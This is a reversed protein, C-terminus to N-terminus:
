QASLWNMLSEEDTEGVIRTVETGEKYSVVTPIGDISFRNWGEEDEMLNLHKVRIGAEEAASNLLPAMNECHSCFPTYFYVIVDGKTSLIYELTESDSIDTGNERSREQVDSIIADAEQQAEEQEATEDQLQSDHFLEIRDIENDFDIDIMSLRNTGVSYDLYYGQFLESKYERFPEGLVEKVWQISGNQVSLAIGTITDPNSEPSDYITDNYNFFTVNCYSHYDTLHEYDGSEEPEGWHSIVASLSDGVGFSVEGAYGASLKDNFSSDSIIAEVEFGGAQPCSSTEKEQEIHVETVKREVEEHKADENEEVRDEPPEVMVVDNKEVGAERNEQAPDAETRLDNVAYIMEQNVLTKAIKEECWSSIGLLFFVIIIYKFTKLRNRRFVLLILLILAILSSVIRIFGFAAGLILLQEVM